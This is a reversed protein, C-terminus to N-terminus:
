VSFWHQALTLSPPGANFRCRTLRDQTIEPIHSDMVYAIGCASTLSPELVASICGKVLLCLADLSYRSFPVVWCVRSMSGIHSWHQALTERKKNCHKLGIM